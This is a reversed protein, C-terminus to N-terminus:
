KDVKKYAAELRALEAKRSRHSLWIWVTMGVLCVATIVYSPIIFSAHEGFM